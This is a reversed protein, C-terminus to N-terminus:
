APRMGILMRDAAFRRWFEGEACGHPMAVLLQSPSVVARPPSSLSPTLWSVLWSVGQGQKATGQLEAWAGKCFDGYGVASASAFLWSMAQQLM